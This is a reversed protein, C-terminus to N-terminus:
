GINSITHTHTHTHATDGGTLYMSIDQILLRRRIAIWPIAVHIYTYLHYNYFYFLAIIGFFTEYQEMQHKVGSIRTRLPPQVGEEDLCADWLSILVSYNKLIGQIAAAKVTWRYYMFTHM